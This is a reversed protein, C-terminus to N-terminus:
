CLVVARPGRKLAYTSQCNVVIDPTDPFTAWLAGAFGGSLSSPLFNFLTSGSGSDRKAPGVTASQIAPWFGSVVNGVEPASESVSHPFLTGYDIKTRAAVDM